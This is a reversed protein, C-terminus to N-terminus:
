YILWADFVYGAHDGYTVLCWRGTKSGITVKEKECNNLEIVTGHPIKALREGYEADPESRLALFGDGPSNVRATPTGRAPTPFPSTNTGSKKQDEIKKQLNALEEKLRAKEDDPTPSTKPSVIPSPTPSGPNQDGSQYYFFVGALAAAVLTLFAVLLVGVLIKLITSGSGKATEAYASTSGGTIDVRLPNEGIPRVLTPDETPLTALTSGDTLCFRLTEDTYTTKCAPCQKM